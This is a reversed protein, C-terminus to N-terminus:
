GLLAELVQTPVPKVLHLECGVEKSRARYEEQAWATVAIVRTGELVPKRKIRRCVEFGDMGPLGIDLLVFDPLFRLAIDLGVYGNIAYEVEHGMDTLLFALSRASDIHDEIVLVRKPAATKKVLVTGSRVTAGPNGYSYKSSLAVFGGAAVMIRNERQALVNKGIDGSKWTNSPAFRM